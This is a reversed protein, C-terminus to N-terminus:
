LCGPGFTMCIPRVVNWAVLCPQSRAWAMAFTHIGYAQPPPPSRLSGTPAVALVSACATLGCEGEVAKPPGGGGSERPLILLNTRAVCERGLKTQDKGGAAYFLPPPAGVPAGVMTRAVCVLTAVQIRQPRPLASMPAREGRPAGGRSESLRGFAM